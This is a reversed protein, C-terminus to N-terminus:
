PPLPSLFGPLPHGQCLVQLAIAGPMSCAAGPVSGSPPIENDIVLRSLALSSSDSLVLTIQYIAPQHYDWERCRQLRSHRTPRLPITTQANSSTTM